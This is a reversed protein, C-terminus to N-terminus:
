SERPLLQRIVVRVDPQSVVAEEGVEFQLPKIRRIAHAAVLEGDRRDAEAASLKRGHGRGLDQDRAPQAVGQGLHRMEAKRRIAHRQLQVQREAIARRARRQTRGAHRPPTIEVLQALLLLRDRELHDVRDMLELLGLQRQFRRFDGAIEAPFSKLGLLALIVNADALEEQHQFSLALESLGFEADHLSFDAILEREGRHVVGGAFEELPM